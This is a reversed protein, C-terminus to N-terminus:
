AYGHRFAQIHGARVMVSFIHRGILNAVMETRNIYYEIANSYVSRLLYPSHACINALLVKINIRCVSPRKAEKYCSPKFAVPKLLIYRVANYCGIGYAVCPVCASRPQALVACFVPGQLPMFVISNQIEIEGM